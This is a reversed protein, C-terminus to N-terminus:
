AETEQTEVTATARALQSFDLRDLFEGGHDECYNETAGEVMAHAVMMEPYEQIGRLDVWTLDFMYSEGLITGTVCHDRDTAKRVSCTFGLSQVDGLLRELTAVSKGTHRRLLDANIHVNEPLDVDCGFRFLCLVANREDPTMRRLAQLFSWAKSHAAEQADADDEIGLLEFLRDPVPPLYNRRM